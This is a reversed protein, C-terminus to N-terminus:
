QRSSFQHFLLVRAPRFCFVTTDMNLCSRTKASAPTNKARPLVGAPLVLARGHGRGHKEWPRGKLCIQALPSPTGLKLSISRNKSLSLSSGSNGLARAQDEDGNSGPKLKSFIRNLALLLNDDKM